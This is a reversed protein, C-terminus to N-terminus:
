SPVLGSMLDARVEVPDDGDLLAESFSDFAAENIRELAGDLMLDLDAALDALDRRSWAARTLLQRLFMTHEGDLGLLSDPAAEPVAGTEAKSEEDSAIEEAAVPAEEAFVQALLKAVEDTEAQIQSIKAADLSLPGGVLEAKADVRVRDAKAPKARAPETAPAVRGSSGAEHLHRYVDGPDLGLSRYAREIRKVEEAGPEGGVHALSTLLHGVAKRVSEPLDDEVVVSSRVSPPQILTRRLRAKLRGRQNATLGPWHEIQRILMMMEAPDVTGDAQAVSCGLDLMLAAARGSPTALSHDDDAQAAFLVVTDTIGPFKGQAMTEPEVAVQHRELARQLALLVKRQAVGPLGCSALLDNLPYPKIGRGVEVAIERLRKQRLPPWLYAPMLVLNEPAALDPESNKAVRALKSMQEECRDAVRTLDKMAAMSTAVNPLDMPFSVVPASGSAAPKYSVSLRSRGPRVSLGDGFMERFEIEFARDFLKALRRASLGPTGMKRFWLLAWAPPVRMGAQVLRGIGIQVDLTSLDASPPSLLVPGDDRFGLAALVDLFASAYRDFSAFSGRYEALLRQVEARIQPIESRAATTERLVRRELGYFFLFVYGQEIPGTRGRLLWDIYTRWQQRDLRSPNPYYPLPQQRDPKQARPSLPNLVAPDPQGNLLEPVGIYLMGRPIRGADLEVTEGPGYWRVSAGSSARPTPSPELDAVTLDMAANKRSSRGASVRPTRRSRDDSPTPGQAVPEGESVRSRNAGQLPLPDRGAKWMWYLLLGPPILLPFAAPMHKLLWYGLLLWVGLGAALYRAPYAGRKAM